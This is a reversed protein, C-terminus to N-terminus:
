HGGRRLQARAVPPMRDPAAAVRMGSAVEPRGPTFLWRRFFGDLEQGSVAEALAIFEPTAVNGGENEQAWRRLVTFFARDGIRLRLQHLTMAGRQYVAFDFLADRGPDGIRVQWFPDDPPFIGYWFDFLQQATGLGERESWLWEAYSAFGENLWIHRWRELALSDGYWQHAIEHVVVSDGSISDTFFDRAYIPRTQNELAFGLGELDDVIGGGASFPYPGFRSELFDIIEGQRDLSGRAIEGPTAPEDEPTGVIWDVANGPSGAPAGPVTWGDRVNGDQEFSTSGEGTSVSIDDVFVGPFPVLDDTVVSLSLEVQSGAFRALDVTWREYGDSAGSASHWAGTTGRPTCEDGAVSQYHSLFPHIEQWFTCAAGPFRDTHGNRDPLTTWDDQGVTHAEVVFHDWDQETNRTVWFSVTAGGAPVRIRRSLRQYGFDTSQSIALQEGTRAQAFPDFLDPDIADWMEIGQHEYGRMWWEGVNATALYPAMPERAKWHWTTWGHATRRGVLEGNAVVKRSKPATIHFSYAAKDIPHDNVPFWTAAVQPEGIVLAGDDTHIFGSGDPLTRPVGGYRVEVLFRDGSPLVRRPTVTLEGGSRSWAARRGDVEVSHVHLGELDLNFRTLGQTARASIRAV